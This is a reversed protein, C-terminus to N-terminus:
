ALAERLAKLRGYRFVPGERCVYVNNAQCHGCKGVGCKMRRELSCLIADQKIGRALFEIVVFKFMVPPGIIVVATNKPDLKGLGKFLTTVVGVKGRWQEDPQDVTMQFDVEPNERWRSLDHRFLLEAPHRAGYYLSFTGFRAREDVIYQIVSRAPALGLGGAIIIVDKGHLEDLPFGCGLPGRVGIM